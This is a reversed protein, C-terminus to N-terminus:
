EWWRGERDLIQYEAPGDVVEVLEELADESGSAEAPEGCAAPPPAVQGDEVVEELGACGLVQQAEADAGHAGQVLRPGVVHGHVRTLRM